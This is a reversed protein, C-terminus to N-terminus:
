LSSDRLSLQTALRIMRPISSPTELQTQLLDVALRGMEETFVTVSSLAPFVQKTIPTDNFSILSVRKPVSINAEHLARLAGVALTDNAIFFAQPLKDGLESIAQKMLRYGSQTSFDGIYIHSPRYLGRETLDNKFTRFRQDILAEAGDSTREEGALMGITTLNQDLFYNIVQHVANDFDTTVCSHGQTLTDSDVFIVQPSIQSLAQIQQCSFKGIAIIGDVQVEEEFIAQNFFRQISFGVEQARQELGIRIAYYYLDNLEEQPSYWQVVALSKAQEIESTKNTKLHKDYGLQDAIVLIKERTESSVSLTSDQNLVRSVTATSVGAQKAIDSLTAM